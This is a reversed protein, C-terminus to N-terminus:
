NLQFCWSGLSSFIFSFGQLKGKNWFQFLSIKDSKHPGARWFTKADRSFLHTSITWHPLLRTTVAFLFLPGNAFSTWINLNNVSWLVFSGCSFILVTSLPTSIRMIQQSHSGWCQHLATYSAASFTLALGNHVMISTFVFHFPLINVCHYVELDLKMFM